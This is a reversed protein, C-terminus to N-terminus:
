EGFVARIAEDSYGEAKLEAIAKDRESVRKAKVIKPMGLIARLEPMTLKYRDCLVALKTGEDRQRRLHRLQQQNM